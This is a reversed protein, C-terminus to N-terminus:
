GTTAFEVDQCQILDIHAVRLRKLSEDVSRVIRGASFDFDEEDAGYRGVKTALLFKERPVEGLAKGLVSEAMTLGYYPAVDIFNIGLDIATRVARIGDKESFAGHTGGLPAAGFGLVSVKWGTKGLVRYKMCIGPRSSVSAARPALF